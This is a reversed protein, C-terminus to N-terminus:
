KLRPNPIQGVLLPRHPVQPVALGAKPRQEFAGVIGDHQELVAAELIAVLLRQLEKAKGPLFGDDPPTRIGERGVKLGISLGGGGQGNRPILLGNRFALCVEFPPM